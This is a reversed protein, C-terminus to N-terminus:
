RDALGDVRDIAPRFVSAHAAPDPDALLRFLLARVLLQPRDPLAAVTM